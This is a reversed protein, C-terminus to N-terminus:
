QKLLAIGTLSGFQALKRLPGRQRIDYRWLNGGLDTIYIVSSAFDAALGIGEQLGTALVEHNTLGDAGISACNLSNGGAADLGRDTWYMIQNAHDIELDIPEPLNDLVTVIDTRVAADYEEDPQLCARLIRGEGGKPRGKQTWYFHNHPKDLAIGVCHRSYDHADRPYLGTQVLVEMRGSLVDYRCVRMGERDCWYIQQKEEDFAVQKGTVFLGNGVQKHRQHGDLSVEAIMGDAQFFELSEPEKIRGTSSYFLRQHQWDVAIGDPFDYLEDVLIRHTATVTDFEIIRGAPAVELLLIKDNAM